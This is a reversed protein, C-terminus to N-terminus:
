SRPGTCGEARVGLTVGLELIACSQPDLASARAYAALAALENGESSEFGALAFWGAANNPQKRVADFYAARASDPRGLVIQADARAFLPGLALPNLAEAALAAALAEEPDTTVLRSSRDLNRDALPPLILSILCLALLVVPVLAALPRAEPWWMPGRGLLLGLGLFVPGTLAIFDWDVEVFAHVAYVCLVLLIALAARREADPLCAVARSAAVLGTIAAGVALAFGIIGLEGLFQLAINHPQRVTLADDRYIRHVVPFSGAGTGAVPHDQFSEAAEQWWRWRANSSTSTLREAENSLLEPNSFERFREGVYDIPDGVRAIGVVIAVIAILAAAWGITSTAQRRWEESPPRWRELRALAYAVGVVFLFGGLLVFGLQRGDAARVALEQREEAIGPQNIAWAGVGLGIPVAVALAILTELRPPALVLWAVAVLAAAVIGARSLTMLLAPVLLFLLGAALARIVPLRGRSTLWLTLPVGFVLALGLGNWLGIPERLRARRFGDEFLSPDIKGALAWVAVAAVLLTLAGAFITPARPVLLGFFLGVGLLGAYALGRNFYSWTLDPAFSWAVSVGIWGVLGLLLALSALGLRSLRPLPVVGALALGTLVAVLCLAGGGIWVISGDGAGGGALVSAGLLCGAAAGVSVPILYRELAGSAVLDTRRRGAAEIAASM